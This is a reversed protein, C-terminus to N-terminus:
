GDRGTGAAPSLLLFGRAPRAGRGERVRAGVPLLRFAGSRAAGDVAEETGHGAGASERAPLEASDGVAGPQVRWVAGALAGGGPLRFTWAGPGAATDPLSAAALTRLGRDGDWAWGRGWPRRGGDDLALLGRGDPGALLLTRAPGAAGPDGALREFRLSLVAVPIPAAGTDAPLLRGEALRQRRGTAGRWSALERGVELRGGGPGSTELAALRGRPDVSIRFGPAPLPRWAAAAADMRDDVSLTRRASDGELRWARYRRELGESGDTRNELWYAGAPRGDGAAWAVLTM